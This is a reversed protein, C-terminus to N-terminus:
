SNPMMLTAVVVAAVLMGAENIEYGSVPADDLTLRGAVNRLTKEPELTTELDLFGLGDASGPEGELGLPDHIRHGLM